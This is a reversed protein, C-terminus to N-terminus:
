YEEPLLATLILEAANFDYDSMIWFTIENSKYVGMFREEKIADEVKEMIENQYKKDEDCLYGWDNKLFQDFSNKIDLAKIKEGKCIMESIGRTCFTRIEM